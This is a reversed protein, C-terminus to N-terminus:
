RLRIAPAEGADSGVDFGDRFRRDATRCANGVHRWRLSKSRSKSAQALNGAPVPVRGLRGLRRGCTPRAFMRPRPVLYGPRTLIAHGDPMNELILPFDVPEVLFTTLDVPRLEMGDSHQQSLREEFGAPRMLDATARDRGLAQLYKTIKPCAEAFNLLLGLGIPQTWFSGLTM